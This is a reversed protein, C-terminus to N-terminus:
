REMVLHDVHRRLDLADNTHHKGVGGLRPYVQFRLILRIQRTQASVTLLEPQNENM